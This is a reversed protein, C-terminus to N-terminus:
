KQLSSLPLLELRGVESSPTSPISKKEVLEPLFLVFEWEREKNLYM